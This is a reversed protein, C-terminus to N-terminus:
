NKTVEGPHVVGPVCSLKTIGSHLVEGQTNVVLGLFGLLFPLDDELNVSRFLSKLIM